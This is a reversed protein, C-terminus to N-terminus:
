LESASVRGNAESSPAAPAGRFAAKVIFFSGNNLVVEHRELLQHLRRTENDGAFDGHVGLIYGAGEAVRDAVFGETLDDPSSHWGKRHSYYLIMPNDKDVAIILAGNPLKRSAVRALQFASSAAPSEQRLWRGYNLLSAVVVGVVCIACSVRVWRAPGGDKELGWSAAKGLFYCVPVTAPLLYYDHVFVGNAVVVIFVLTGVLWLSFVKEEVRHPKRILGLILLPLGLFALLEGPIREIFVKNWFAWTGLLSWNGWKDSGYEWVGFTLGTAVKLDHAHVYWLALSGLVIVAFLWLELRTFARVGYKRFALFALPLGLYLTPPKILCAVALAIASLLLLWLSGSDAWRLFWFVAYTCAALLLAEPMVARGFYVPMPLVAFFFAAWLGVSTSAVRTALLYVGILTSLSLILSLIRGLSEHVGLVEYLSALALQYIPLECEVEGSSTGRWDIRPHLISYREEVFNRAVAATDTQRWSHHGLLPQTINILRLAGALLLIALLLTLSGHTGAKLFKPAPAKM